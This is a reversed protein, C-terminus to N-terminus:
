TRFLWLLTKIVYHTNHVPNAQEEVKSLGADTASGGARM